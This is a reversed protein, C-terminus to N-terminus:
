LSGGCEFHAVCRWILWLMELLSGSCELHAVVDGVILWLMELHAM